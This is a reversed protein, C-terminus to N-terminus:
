YEDTEIKHKSRHTHTPLPHHANNLEQIWISRGKMQSDDGLTSELNFMMIFSFSTFQLPSFFPFLRQVTHFMPLSKM